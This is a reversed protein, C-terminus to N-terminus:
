VCLKGSMVEGRRHRINVVHYRPLTLQYQSEVIQTRSGLPPLTVTTVTVHHPNVKNDDNVTGPLIIWAYLECM